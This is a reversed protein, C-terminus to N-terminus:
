KDGNEGGVRDAADLRSLALKLLARLIVRQRDDMTGNIDPGGKAAVWWASGNSTFVLEERSADVRISLDDSM